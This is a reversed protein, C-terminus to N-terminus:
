NVLLQTKLVVFWNGDISANRSCANIGYVFDSLELTGSRCGCRDARRVPAM